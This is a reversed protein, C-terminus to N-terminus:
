CMTARQNKCLVDTTAITTTAAAAATIETTENSSSSENVDVVGPCESVSDNENEEKNEM